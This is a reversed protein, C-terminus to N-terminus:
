FIVTVDYYSFSYYYYNILSTFDYRSDRVTRATKVLPSQAKKRLALVVEGEVENHSRKGKDVQVKSKEEKEVENEVEIEVKADETTNAEVQFSTTDDCIAKEQQKKKMSVGVVVERRRELVKHINIIPHHHRDNHGYAPCFTFAPQNQKSTSSKSAPSSTKTRTTTTTSSSSTSEVEEDNNDSGANMALAKKMTLIDHVLM